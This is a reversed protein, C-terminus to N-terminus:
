FSELDQKTLRIPLDHELLLENLESVKEFPYIIGEGMYNSLRDAIVYFLKQHHDELVKSEDKLSVLKKENALYKWGNQALKHNISEISMENLNVTHIILARMDDAVRIEYVEYVHEAIKKVMRNPASYYVQEAENLEYVKM